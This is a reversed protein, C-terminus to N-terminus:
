RHKSKYLKLGNVGLYSTSDTEAIWYLNFGTCNGYICLSGDAAIPEYVYRDQYNPSGFASKIQNSNGPAQCSSTCVVTITASSSSPPTLTSKTTGPLLQTLYGGSVQNPTLDTQSVGEAHLMEEIGPYYGVGKGTSDPWNASSPTPMTAVSNGASYRQELGRAIAAIDDAREQDRASGQINGLAAIGLALLVVMIIITILLEILTFGARRNRMSSLM